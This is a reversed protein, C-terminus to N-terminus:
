PFIRSAEQRRIKCAWQEITTVIDDVSEINKYLHPKLADNFGKEVENLRNVTLLYNTRNKFTAKVLADLHEGKAKLLDQYHEALVKIWQAYARFTDEPASSMKIIKNVDPKRDSEVAAFAEELTRQRTVMFHEVFAKRGEAFQKLKYFYFVFFVPILIMWLSLIPKDIVKAAIANAFQEESHLILEKKNLLTLMKM